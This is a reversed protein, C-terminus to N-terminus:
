QDTENNEVEWAKYANQQKILALYAPNDSYEAELQELEKRLAEIEEPSRCQELAEYYAQAAQFMKRKKESYQPMDVGMIDEAIDEISEGSYADELDQDLTFM